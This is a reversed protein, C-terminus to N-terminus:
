ATAEGEFCHEIQEASYHGFTGDRFLVTFEKRRPQRRVIAVWGRRPEKHGAHATTQVFEGLVFREWPDSHERIISLASLAAKYRTGGDGEPLDALMREVLRFERFTAHGVFVEGVNPEAEIAIGGRRWDVKM